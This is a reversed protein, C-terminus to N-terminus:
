SVEITVFMTSNGLLAILSSRSFSVEHSLPQRKYADPHDVPTASVAIVPTTSKSRKSKSKPNETPSSAVNEPIRPSVSMTQTRPTFNWSPPPTAATSLPYSLLGSINRQLNKSWKERKIFYIYKCCYTISLCCSINILIFFTIDSYPFLDFASSSDFFIYTTEIYGITLIILLPILVQISL